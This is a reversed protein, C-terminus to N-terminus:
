PMGAIRSTAKQKSENTWLEVASTRVILIAFGKNKM